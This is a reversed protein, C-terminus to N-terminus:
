SAILDRFGFLRIGGWVYEPFSLPPLGSVIRVICPPRAFGHIQAPHDGFQVVFAFMHLAFESLRSSQVVWAEHKDRVVVPPDDNSLDANRVGWSTVGQNEVCFHLVDDECFLDEPSLLTDQNSWVDDRLGALGYWERMAAPIPAGLREASRRLEEDGYGDGDALPRYWDSILRSLLAWREPRTEPLSLLPSPESM